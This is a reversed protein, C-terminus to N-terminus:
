KSRYIQTGIQQGPKHLVKRCLARVVDVIVSRQIISQLLAPKAAQSEAEGVVPRSTWNTPWPAAKFTTPEIVNQATGSEATFFTRITEHDTSIDVELSGDVVSLVWQDIEKLLADSGRDCGDCACDPVTALHVVPDGAAITVSCPHDSGRPEDLVLVLEVAGVASPTLVTVTDTGGSGVPRLAWAVRSAQQAWGRDLLVKIWAQARAEVIQFKEPESFREHAEEDPGPGELYPDPWRPTGAGTVAFATDVDELLARIQPSLLPENGGWGTERVARIDDNYDEWWSKAPGAVM